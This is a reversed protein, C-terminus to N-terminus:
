SEGGDLRQAGRANRQPGEPSPRSRNRSHPPWASLSAKPANSSAGHVNVSGLTPRATKRAAPLTPFNVADLEEEDSLPNIEVVEPPWTVKPRGQVFRQPHRAFAEDLALQRERAVRLYEGSFVQAPTYSALGSHHHDNNYWQFFDAWWHRASALSEFRGPYDPQYKGTKFHSEIFPNDNSVRPRSHSATVQLEGLLDLFGHAVMPAGRDQHVTLTHAEIAYRELAEDFLQKALLTNERQSVMWAIVYRSFLDLIVFLSLYVGRQVTRLKTVDWTWVENPGTARLRPIAHSTAQRQGRREGHARHAKLIRQMTRVSCLYRGEDLLTAYVEGPPQDAFRESNLMAFVEDRESESLARPHSRRAPLDSRAHPESLRYYLSSRAVGLVECARSLPISARRERLLTRM